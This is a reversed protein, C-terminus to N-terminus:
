VKWSHKLSTNDEDTPALISYFAPVLGVYIDDSIRLFDNWGQFEFVNIVEPLSIFNELYFSRGRAIPRRFFNSHFNDHM